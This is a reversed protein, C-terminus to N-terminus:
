PPPLESITKHTGLFFIIWSKQRKTLISCWYGFKGELSFCCFFRDFYLASHNEPVPCPTAHCLSRLFHFRVIHARHDNWSSAQLTEWTCGLSTSSSGMWVGPPSSTPLGPLGLCCQFYHKLCAFCQQFPCQTFYKSLYLGSYQLLILGLNFATWTM